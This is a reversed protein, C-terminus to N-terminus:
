LTRSRGTTSAGPSGTVQVNATPIVVTAQQPTNPKVGKSSSKKTEINLEKLLANAELAINNGKTMTSNLKGFGFQDSAISRFFEASGFEVAKLAHSSHGDGGGPQSIQELGQRVRSFLDVDNFEKAVEFVNRLKELRKEDASFLSSTADALREVRERARENEINLAKAAIARARTSEESDTDGGITNKFVPRDRTIKDFVDPFRFSDFKQNFPNNRPDNIQEEAAVIVQAAGKILAKGPAQIAELAMSVPESVTASLDIFFKMIKIMDVLTPGLTNKIFDELKALNSPNFADQLGDALESLTPTLGRGIALKFDDVANRMKHIDAIATNRNKSILDGFFRPTGLLKMANTVETIGVKSKVIFKTLEDDTLKATAGRTANIAEELAAYIPIGQNAFERLDITSAKGKLKIQSLNFVIKDLSSNPSALSINTLIKVFEVIESPDFNAALLKQASPIVDSLFNVPAQNSFSKLDRILQTGVKVGAFSKIAVTAEEFKATVVVAEAALSAMRRALIYLAYGKVLRSLGGTGGALPYPSPPRRLVPPVPPVFRAPLGSRYIAPVRSPVSRLVPPPVPPVFRAPLGGRYIAPVPYTPLRVGGVLTFGPGVRRGRRVASTASIGAFKLKGYAETTAKVSALLRNQNAITRHIQRNLTDFTASSTTTLKAFRQPFSAGGRGGVGIRSVAESALVADTTIKNLSAQIASLRTKLLPYGRAELQIYATLLRFEDAAM